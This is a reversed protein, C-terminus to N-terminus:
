SSSCPRGAPPAPRAPHGPPGPHRSACAPLTERFRRLVREQKFWDLSAILRPFHTWPNAHIGRERRLGALAARNLIRFELGFRDRMEDRWQLQLSAPCLILVDEVRGRLILEQLVLGAEITKGLGVDDALLLNVRPMALARVAPELQYDDPEVGSRFPSQLCRDTRSAAGWRAALLFADLDGPDDMMDMIPLSSGSLARAGPEMEWFVELREDLSNEDLCSLSLLHAPIGEAGGGADAPASVSEVIWPRGRVLVTCGTEPVGPLGAPADPAPTRPSPKRGPM